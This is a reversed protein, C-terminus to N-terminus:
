VKVAQPSRLGFWAVLMAALLCGGLILWSRVEANRVEGTVQLAAEADAMFEAASPHGLASLREAYAMSEVGRHLSATLWAAQELLRPDDPYQGLGVEAGELAGSLDGGHHRTWAILWEREAGEATSAIALAEMYRNEGVLRQVDVAPNQFALFSFLLLAKM